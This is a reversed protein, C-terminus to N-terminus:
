IKIDVHKDMLNMLRELATWQLAAAGSPAGGHRLLARIRSIKEQIITYSPQTVENNLLTIIHMTTFLLGDLDRNPVPNGRVDVLAVVFELINTYDLGTSPDRITRGNFNLTLLDNRLEQLLM